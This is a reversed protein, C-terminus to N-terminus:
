IVLVGDEAAIAVAITLTVAISELDVADSSEGFHLVFSGEDKSETGVFRLLLILSSPSSSEQVESGGEEYTYELGEM